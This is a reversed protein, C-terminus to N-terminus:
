KDENETKPKDAMDESSCETYVVVNNVEPSSDDVHEQADMITEAHLIDASEDTEIVTHSYINSEKEGQLETVIYHTTGEEFNDNANQVMARALEETVIIQSIEGDDCEVLSMQQEPLSLSRSETNHMIIRPGERSVMHVTGEDNLIVQTVGEKILQDAAASDCVAFQLVGQVMNKFASDQSTVFGSSHMVQRVVGMHEIRQQDEHVEHFMQIEEANSEVCEEDSTIRVLSEEMAPNERNHQREAGRVNGLETVACLLADLASSSDSTHVNQSTDLIRQAMVQQVVNGSSDTVTEIAVSEGVDTEEMSGEVVVVQTTGEPLQDGLIEGSIISGMHGTQDTAIVQGDETIHVVRAVQGAMALTQLTAAATEEVSTDITFNGDYEDSFGQIIIVQQVHETSQPQKRTSRINEKVTPPESTTSATFPSDTEVFNAGQGKLRCEFSKSVIGAHLYALDPNEIDLHQEKLHNRFEMPANTGYSCKPCNYMKVGDHKGTHLIHKRVNEACNSRYDCWPCMYPKEGTHVRKHRTLHSQTTSAFNCEDCKFPKEGTHQRRHKTLAHRTGGAFGCLDCLFSKEGTHTRYHDKMASATLFSYHCTPWTCKFPKEGTHLKMHNNLAWRERFSRDCLNCAFKREKPTGVGHKGLLHTNLHKRMVFAVGCVHCKYERMGIHRKVHNRADGLQAAAFHCIKCKFPKSGTHTRIHALFAMSNSSKCIKGCFKCVNGQNEERERNIQETDEVIYKNVEKLLEEHQEKIHIFLSQESDFPETCKVCRFTGGGEPLEEFSAQENRKHGISALHQHLNSETFFSKGCLLCHFHKEKVPHKMSIHVNLGSLGDALFGCDDCRIRNGDRKTGNTKKKKTLQPEIMKSESDGIKCANTTHSDSLEDCVIRLKVISSDFLHENNISSCTNVTSCSESFDGTVENVSVQAAGAGDNGNFMDKEETEENGLCAIQVKAVKVACTQVPFGVSINKDARGETELLDTQGGYNKEMLESGVALTSADLRANGNEQLSHCHSINVKNAEHIEDFEALGETPKEHFPEESVADPLSQLNCAMTDVLLTSSQPSQHNVKHKETSAHTIMEQHTLAYYDCAKCYYEYEKGHTNKVHMALSASDGVFDCSACKNNGINIYVKQGLNDGVVKHLSECVSTEIPLDVSTDTNVSEEQQSYPFLTSDTGVYVDENSVAGVSGKKKVTAEFKTGDTTVVIETKPQSIKQEAVRNKHKKTICHREMDGKTVTDYNCVKCKYNYQHTHKRRIHVKLNTVSSAMLGCHTCSISLNGKPRGRKPTNALNPDTQSPAHKSCLSEETSTIESSPQAVQFAESQPSNNHLIDPDTVGDFSVKEICEEFLLGINNKKANEIHKSRKIHREMGEKYMTYINCAKCLFHYDHAHCLKVHRTLVVSSRTKYFCKKCQFRPKRVENAVNDELTVEVTSVTTSSGDEPPRIDSLNMKLELKGVSSTDLIKGHGWIHEEATEHHLRDDNSKFYVKCASCHFCMKHKASMHTKFTSEDSADLGCLYCNLLVSGKKHKDNQCHKEFDGRTVCSYGCTQCYIQMQKAHRKWFHLFMYEKTGAVTKCYVCGYYEMIQTTRVIKFASSPLTDASDFAKIVDLYAGNEDQLSEAAASYIHLTKVPQKLNRKLQVIREKKNISMMQLHKKLQRFGYKRRFLCRRRHKKRDRKIKAIIKSITESINAGKRTKSKDMSSKLPKSNKLWYKLNQESNDLTSGCPLLKDESKCSPTVEAQFNRVNDKSLSMENDENYVANLDKVKASTPNSKRIGGKDLNSKTNKNSRKKLLKRRKLSGKRESHAEDCVHALLLKESSCQFDCNKCCFVTCHTEVEAAPGTLTSVATVSLGNGDFHKNLDPSPSVLDGVIKLNSDGSNDVTRDALKQSLNILRHNGHGEQNFASQAESCSPSLVKNPILDSENTASIETQNTYSCPQKLPCDNENHKNVLTPVEMQLKIRKPLSPNEFEEGDMEGSTCFQEFPRKNSTCESERQSETLHDEKVKNTKGDMEEVIVAENALSQSGQANEKEM